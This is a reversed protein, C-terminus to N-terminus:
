KQATLLVVKNRFTLKKNNIYKKFYPKNNPYVALYTKEVVNDVCFNIYDSITDASEDLEFQDFISWDTCLFCGQLTEMSDETWVNFTNHELKCTKFVSKYSPILHVVNHDSNSLPLKSKAAYHIKSMAM